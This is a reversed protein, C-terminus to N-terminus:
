PQEGELLDSIAAEETEGWGYRGSEEEGDYHAGWDYGRYPIPPYAHFTVIGRAAAIDAKAQELTRIPDHLGRLPKM